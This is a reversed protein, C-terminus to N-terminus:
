KFALLKTCAVSYAVHIYRYKLGTAGEFQSQIVTLLLTGDEETPLEVPQAAKTGKDDVDAQVMVCEDRFEDRWKEMEVSKACACTIPFVQRDRTCSSLGRRTRLLWTNELLDAIISAHQM